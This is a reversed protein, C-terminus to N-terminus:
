THRSLLLPLRTNDRPVYDTTTKGSKTKKGPEAGSELLFRVATHSGTACALHLPTEDLFNPSNPDGNTQRLLVRLVALCKGRAAYHMATDGSSDFTRTSAGRDLLLKAVDANNYGCAYMLPTKGGSDQADVYAGCNLLLTPISTGSSVAYHLPTMRFSNISNVSISVESILFRVLDENESFIAKHLLTDFSDDEASCLGENDNILRRVQPLNGENCAKFIRSLLRSQRLRPPEEIEIINIEGEEVELRTARSNALRSVEDRISRLTDAGIASAIDFEIETGSGQEEDDPYLSARCVPCRDSAMAASLFCSSHLLHNCPTTATPTEDDFELQCVVCISPDPDM